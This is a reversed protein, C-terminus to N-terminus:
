ITRMLNTESFLLFCHRQLKKLYGSDEQSIFMKLNYLTNMIYIGLNWIKVQMVTRNQLNLRYTPANSSLTKSNDSVFYLPSGGM